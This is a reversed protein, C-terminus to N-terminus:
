SEVIRTMFDVTSSTDDGTEIDFEGVTLPEGVDTDDGVRETVTFTARYGAFVRQEQQETNAGGVRTSGGPLAGLLAPEGRVFAWNVWNMTLGLAQGAPAAKYAFTPHRRRAAAKELTRGVAGFIGSWPEFGCPLVLEAFIYLVQIEREVADYVLSWNRHTSRTEWAYLAPTDQRVWTGSPDFPFVNCDPVACSPKSSLNALKANLSFNLWHKLYALLADITPDTLYSLNAGAPVPLTQSGVPGTAM